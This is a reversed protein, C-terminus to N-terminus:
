KLNNEREFKNVIAEKLEGIGDVPTYHSYGERIAGIAAQKINEPTNFDPEGASFCLVNFGNQTMGKARMTIGLTLSPEIRSIRKALLM